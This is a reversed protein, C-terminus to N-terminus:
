ILRQTACHVYRHIALNRTIVVTSDTSQTMGSSMHEKPMVLNGTKATKSHEYSLTKM